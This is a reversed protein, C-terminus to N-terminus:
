RQFGKNYLGRPTSPAKAHHYVAYPKIYIRPNDTEIHFLREIFNNRMCLIGTKNKRPRFYVAAQAIGPVKTRVTNKQLIVDLPCPLLLENLFIRVIHLQLRRNQHIRTDPLSRTMQLSERIRHHVAAFAMRTM